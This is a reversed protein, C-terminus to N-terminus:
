FLAGGAWVGREPGLCGRTSLAPVTRGTQGKGPESGATGGAPPALGRVPVCGPLHRPPQLSSGPNGPEAGAPIRTPEQMEAAGEAAEDRLGDGPLCCPLDPM